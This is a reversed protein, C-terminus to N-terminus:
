DKIKHKNTKIKMKEVCVSEIVGRNICMPLSKWCKCRLEYVRLATM